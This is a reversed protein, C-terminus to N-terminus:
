KFSQLVETWRAKAESRAWPNECDLTLERGTLRGLNSNATVCAGLLRSDLERLLLHGARHRDVQGIAQAARMRVAADRDQLMREFVPRSASDQQADLYELAQVRENWSWGLSKRVPRELADLAWDRRSRSRNQALWADFAAADFHGAGGPRSWSRFTLAELARATYSRVFANSSEILPRIVSASDATGFRRLGTFGAERVEQNPSGAAQEFQPLSAADHKALYLLARARVSADPDTAARRMAPVFRDDAAQEIVGAASVRITPNPHNLLPVVDPAAARADLQRVGILIQVLLQANATDLREVLARVVRPDNASRLAAAIPDLIAANRPSDRFAGILAMVARDGGIRGLAEVVAARFRTAEPGPGPPEDLLAVLLPVDTSDRLRGLLAAAQARDRLPVDRKGVIARLDAAIAPCRPAHLAVSEGFEYALTGRTTDLHRVIFPWMRCDPRHRFLLGLMMWSIREVRPDNRDIQALVRPVLDPSPNQRIADLVRPGPGGSTALHKILGDLATSTDQLALEALDGDDITGRDLRDILIRETKADLATVTLTVPAADIQGEWVRATIEYPDYRTFLCDPYNTYRFGIQHTGRSLAFGSRLGTPSEATPGPLVRTEWTQSPELRVLDKVTIARSAIHAQSTCGPSTGREVAHAMRAQRPNLYLVDRGANRFRATVVPAEGIPVTADSLHLSVRLDDSSAFREITPIPVSAPPDSRQSTPATQVAVFLCLGAACLTEVGGCPRM